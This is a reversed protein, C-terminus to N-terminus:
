TLKVSKVLNKRIGTTEGEYRSRDGVEKIGLTGRRIKVKKLYKMKNKVRVNREIKKRKKVIGKNRKIKDDIERKERKEEIKMNEEASESGESEESEESENMEISKSVINKELDRIQAVVPHNTAPKGNAKLMLYFSIHIALVKCYGLVKIDKSQKAQKYAKMLKPISDLVGLLEPSDREIVELVEDETLQNFDNESNGLDPMFDSEKLNEGRKGLIELAVEEEDESESAKYYDKKSWNAM